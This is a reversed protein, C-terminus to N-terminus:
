CAITVKATTGYNGNKEFFTQISVLVATRIIAEKEHGKISRRSGELRDILVERVAKWEFTKVNVRYKFLLEALAEIEADSKSKRSIKTIRQILPSLRQQPADRILWSFMYYCAKAHPYSRGIGDFLFPINKENAASYCSLIAQHIEGKSATKLIEDLSDNRSLVEQFRSEIWDYFPRAKDALKTLEVLRAHTIDVGSVVLKKNTMNKTYCLFYAAINLLAIADLKTSLIPRPHKFIINQRFKKYSESNWDSKESASDKGFGPNAPAFPESPTLFNWFM